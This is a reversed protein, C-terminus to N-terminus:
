SAEQHPNGTEPDGHARPDYREIPAAEGRLQELLHTTAATIRMTAEHLTDADLPRGYLDDLDVAPGALVRMTRRPLVHAWKGYPAIVQHAGWHALPILPRRTELAVRAAGTKGTMPWLDPDRTLTGEPFMVVCKGREVGEVAARYADGARGTTRCVPIQGAAELLRGLLPIRFVEEKGLFHPPCGADFLYHAVCFPDLPSIHNPTVVFGGERPLHEWGRWDRKTALVMFPRVLVVVIRYATSLRGRPRVPTVPAAKRQDGM